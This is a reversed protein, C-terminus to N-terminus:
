RKSADKIPIGENRAYELGKSGAYCYITLKPNNNDSYWGNRRRDYPSHYEHLNFVEKGIDTLTSPLTIETMASCNEFVNNEIAYLGENLQVNKLMGCSCFAYELIKTVKVPLTIEQLKSCGFFAFEGITKLEDPLLVKKLTSCSSFTRSKIETIGNPLDIEELSSCGSFTEKGLYTLGTPLIIHGITTQAFVGENEMSMLYSFRDTKSSDEKSGIRKLTSPLIVEKLMPCEAFAGNEIYTIGEAIIIKEVSKCAKYADKGIGVVKKRDITSPVTLEKEDFGKFKIIEVSDADVSKLDFYFASGAVNQVSQAGITAHKIPRPQPNANAGSSLLISPKHIKAATGVGICQDIWADLGEMVYKEQLGYDNVIRQVYAAYQSDTIAGARRIERPVGSEYVDLLVNMERTQGPYLDLIVARMLSRSQLCDKSYGIVKSLDIM